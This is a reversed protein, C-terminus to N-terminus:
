TVEMSIGFTSAFAWASSVGDVVAGIIISVGLSSSAGLWTCVGSGLTESFDEAITSTCKKGLHLSSLGFLGCSTKWVGSCDVAVGGTISVSVVSPASASSTVADDSFSSAVGSVATGFGSGINTRQQIGERECSPVLM